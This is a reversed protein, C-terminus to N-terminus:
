KEFISDFRGYGLATKAGVGFEKLAEKLLTNTKGLLKKGESNRHAVAFSFTVGTPVSLFIVPNPQLWDGPGKPSGLYYEQYHPNMIDLELFTNLKESDPFADFFIILGEREQTGFINRLEEAPVEEANVKISRDNIEDSKGAGEFWDQVEKALEFFDKEKGQDQLVETITVIAWHKTVGKLASGPIYPVGYNRHLRISTEYVSEDGLGIILRSKTKMKQFIDVGKTEWLKNQVQFFSQYEQFAKQSLVINHGFKGYKPKLFGKQKKEDDYGFPVFKQIQLSANEYRKNAFSDRVVEKLEKPLKFEPDEKQKNRQLEQKEQYKGGWSRQDKM